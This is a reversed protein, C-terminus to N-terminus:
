IKQSNPLTCYHQGESYGPQVFTCKINNCLKAKTVCLQKNKRGHYTEVATLQGGDRQSLGSLIEVGYGPDFCNLYTCVHLHVYYM